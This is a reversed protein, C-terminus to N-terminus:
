LRRTIPFSRTRTSSRAEPRRPLAQPASCTTSAGVWTRQARRDASVGGPTSTLDRIVDHWGEKELQDTVWQREEPLFGSHTLNGKWNKLDIEKHAINVDGCLLVERGSAALERMHARIADLFRYKAEQREDGSTGSPFYVSVISLGKFDVRVYRGEDDFEPVGFGTQM